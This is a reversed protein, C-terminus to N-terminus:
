DYVRMEQLSADIMYDPPLMSRPIELPKGRDGLRQGAEFRHAIESPAVPVGELPQRGATVDAILQAIFVGVFARQADPLTRGSAAIDYEVCRAVWQVTERDLTLVVRLPITKPKRM